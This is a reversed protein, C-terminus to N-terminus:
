FNFEFLEDLYYEVVDESLRNLDRLVIYHLIQEEAAPRQLHDSCFVM